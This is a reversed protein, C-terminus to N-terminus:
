QSEEWLAVCRRIFFLHHRAPIEDVYELEFEALALSLFHEGGQSEVLLNLEEIFDFGGM